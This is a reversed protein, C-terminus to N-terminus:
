FNRNFFYTEDNVKIEIYDHRMTQYWVLEWDIAHELWTPLNELQESYCEGIFDECFTEKDRYCGSYSDDFQEETTVGLDELEEILEDVFHLDTEGTLESVHQRFTELEAQETMSEEADHSETELETTPFREALYSDLETGTLLKTTNKMSIM